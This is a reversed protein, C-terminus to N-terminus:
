RIMGMLYMGALFCILCTGFFYSKKQVSYGNNKLVHIHVDMSEPTVRVDVYEIQDNEDYDM